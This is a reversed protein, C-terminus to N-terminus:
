EDARSIEESAKTFKQAITQGLMKYAAFVIIVIIIVILIYEVMGQGKTNRLFRLNFM